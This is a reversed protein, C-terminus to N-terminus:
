DEKAKDNEKIRELLAKVFSVCNSGSFAGLVIYNMLGKLIFLVASRGDEDKLYYFKTRCFNLEQNVRM